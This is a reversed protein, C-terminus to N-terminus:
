AVNGVHSAYLTSGVKWLEIVTYGSTALTPASGGVWTTSPWTIADSGDGDDVMLLMSQGAAISDSPTRAGSISGTNLTWTQITGNNPELVPSAADTIAFVNEDIAGAIDVNSTVELAGTVKAGASTTEFKQVGDYALAATGNVDTSIQMEDVSYSRIRIADGKIYLTGEGNQFYSNSGDHYIQLDDATGLLIKGSDIIDIDNSIFVDKWRADSAGLDYTNDANVKAHAHFNINDSATELKKSDDYYLEVAANPHIKVGNENNVARLYLIGGGARLYINGTANTIQSDTGDHYIELDNGTGFRVKVDDNFDIGTTGDANISSAWTLGGTNGSQKQLFQGNSGANSISLKVETVANDALKDTTVQSDGIHATHISNNVYQDSDVSNSALLANDIQANGIHADTLKDSELLTKIEAATQDDKAGSEIGDLKTGDAAVDRGDVTGSVAINGTIDVNTTRFSTIKADIRGEIAKTSAIKTDDTTYWSETSIITPDGTLWANAVKDNSEQNVYLNQLTNDNLDGARIASGPYFTAKPNEFATDRYIRIAVSSGPASDFRVTTANLLSYATTIVGDLSIKIDTTDLYPFTFSYDTTSNNGTYTNEITVTM